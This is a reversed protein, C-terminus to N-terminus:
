DPPGRSEQKKLALPSGHPNRAYLPIDEAAQQIVESAVGMSDSATPGKVATQTTFGVWGPTRNENNNRFSLRCSPFIERTLTLTYSSRLTSVRALNRM